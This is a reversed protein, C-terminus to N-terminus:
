CTLHFAGAIEKNNKGKLKSNYYTVAEGSKGIWFEIDRKKLFEKTKEKVRMRGSSGTGIILLDPKKSTVWTLDDPNLEHGQKRVWNSKIEEGRIMLDNRYEEGEIVMRGFSYSEIVM